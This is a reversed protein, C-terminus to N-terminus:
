KPEKICQLPYHSFLDTNLCTFPGVEIDSEHYSVRALCGERAPAELSSDSRIPCFFLITTQQRVVAQNYAGYFSPGEGEGGRDRGILLAINLTNLSPEIKGSSPDM